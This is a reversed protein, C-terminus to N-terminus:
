SMYCIDLAICLLLDQRILVEVQRSLLLKEGLEAAIFDGRGSEGDEGFSNTPKALRECRAANDALEALEHEVSTGNSQTHRGRSELWQRISSM